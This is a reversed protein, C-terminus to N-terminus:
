KKSDFEGYSDVYPFDGYGKRVQKSRQLNRLNSKILEMLKKMVIKNKDDIAIIQKSIDKIDLNIKEVEKYFLSNRDEDLIDYKAIKEDLSKCKEFLVGRKQFFNYFREVDEEVVDFKREKTMDLVKQLCEKKQQLLKLFDKQSDNNM